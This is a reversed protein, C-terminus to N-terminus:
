AGTVKRNIIRSYLEFLKELRETDNKFQRGIYIRELTEDNREHASRLDEPMSDPDYLDAITKPYHRERALLIEEACRTLDIKNKETLKPVPFTNWGLTNSYRFDTKLKGCVTAVWVLHLRSAILAMNWLPADYLAFLLDSVIVNGDLLDVPLYPRRESSVKAVVLSHRKATGAIQVFRHPRTAFDRTSKASSELRFDRVKALVTKLYPHESAFDADDDDIWICWRPKGQIMQESGLYLHIFREVEPFQQLVKKREDGDLVFAGGDRPMNGFLMPSTGSIPSRAQNVSNVRGPVLYANIFDVQREIVSGNEGLTFLRRIPRPNAGIGVIVVTVGANNSALNAWKFSTHAFLIQHGTEFIAPWLIPVQLGQCISNTSVFASIANTRAGYEAAKMFWGAVYDLSKWSIGKSDFIAKLDAKQEDSQWKSGLYPPNGCIYTEGGENEFDIEAQELPTNFLDDTHFKVDTGTSPWISLWDMQLANGCTIWNESSLPLFESLALQMGRYLVDCQFEAIILALRAVEASFHRLEIGRFNTLPIDSKRGHEGRRENISNEIERMQKYAIVLFNGSGCAPDFVRIRSLRKRLNLLKRHNDGAAELQTRLDDLFLPNLVKLINPVSTYHMGLAGREEDDAVAQIMSGFIDPNIKTWDLSGIHLLYSRAIKSFKPVDASGSFLGGNVYPFADAWRPLKAKPRNVIKTNMARFIESIVEHMNSADRVSMQEITETFLDTRSFIGTDDAFFCFILRAMFHNMEHRKETSGWQPNDKLLEVYLRNLRSTAKIDFFSEPVHKFTTIGALPLFFGFHDPFDQYVCAVTEGSELEEAEFDVGDTALIYRAKSKTTARSLRLSVLTKTIEGPQAVAIHINNTQLVGGIDSKNSEGSRLRKITTEKNGFARLFAFPFEAKDFPQIALDSVAAEIEVPNM